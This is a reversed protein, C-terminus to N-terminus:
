KTKANCLPRYTIHNLFVFVFFQEMGCVKADFNRRGQGLLRVAVSWNGRMVGKPECRLGCPCKKFLSIRLENPTEM